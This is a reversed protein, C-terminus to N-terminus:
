LRLQNLLNKYVNLSEQTRAMDELCLLINLCIMIIGRWFSIKLIIKRVYNM